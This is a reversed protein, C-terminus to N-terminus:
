ASNHALWARRPVAPCSESVLWGKRHLAAFHERVTQHHLSFQRSVLSAPCGEGHAAWYAVIAVLIETQRHTLTARSAPDTAPYPEAFSDISEITM